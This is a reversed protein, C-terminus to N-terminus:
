KRPGLKFHFPVMVWVRVFKGKDIAPTFKWKMIADIAATDFIQNDSRMVVAKKVAGDTDVLAKVWVTGEIGARRASDPYVPNVSSLPVPQKDVPVFDPTYVPMHRDLTTDGVVVPMRDPWVPKKPVQQKLPQADLVSTLFCSLFAAAFLIDRTKM